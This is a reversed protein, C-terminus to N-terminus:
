ATVGLQLPISLSAPAGTRRDIVELALTFRGEKADRALFQIRRVEVRDEWRMLATATAAYLRVLTSGNAPRDVLDAVESGFDRRMVRTGIPTSLIDAISQSLDDDLPAGTSREM